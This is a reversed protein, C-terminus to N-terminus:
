FLLAIQEVQAEWLVPPDAAFELLTINDPLTDDLIAAVIDPALVEPTVGL